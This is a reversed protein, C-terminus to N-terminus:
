SNKGEDVEEKKIFMNFFYIPHPNDTQDTDANRMRQQEDATGENTEMDPETNPQLVKDASSPAKRHIAKIHRKLNGMEGFSKGCEEFKYKRIDEHVTQVHRKLDNARSFMKRCQNCEHTKNKKINEHVGM